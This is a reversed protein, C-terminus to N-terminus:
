LSQGFYRSLPITQQSIKALLNGNLAQVTLPSPLKVLPIGAQVAFEYDILCDDAGSDIFAGISLTQNNWSITVPFHNNKLVSSNPLITHSM